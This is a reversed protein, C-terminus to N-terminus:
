AEAALQAELDSVREALYKVGNVLHAIIGDNGYSPVEDPGNETERPAPATLPEADQVNEAFFGIQRKGDENDYTRPELKDLVAMSDEYSIIEDDSKLYKTSTHFYLRYGADGELRLSGWASNNLRLVGPWHMHTGGSGPMDLGAEFQPQNSGTFTWSGTITATTDVKASSDYLVKTLSGLAVNSSTLTGYNNTTPIDSVTHSHSANAFASAHSGDLRDADLGSGAGDVTKIATLIESATQDATAGSEIGNLKSKDSGTMFGDAGGAVVDAHASGGAGVHSAPAFDSAHQGDVTDADLSTVDVGDFLGEDAVISPVSLTTTVRNDQISAETIDSTGGPIQVTALKMAAEWAADPGPASGGVDGERVAFIPLAKSSSDYVNDLVVLWIEDIRTQSADPASLTISKSVDDLRVLYNGQGAIDGSVYAYDVKASGSGVIVNMTGGGGAVVQFADTPSLIGESFVSDNFRVEEVSLDDVATGSFDTREGVANVNLTAEIQTTTPM